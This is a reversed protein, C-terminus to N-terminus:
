DNHIMVRSVYKYLIFTVISVLIGKLLNFPVVAFLVFTSLGSISGNVATGMAIIADMGGFAAAYAPLLVFANLVGGVVAMCLTGVAMGIIAQKRTKRMRYLMGAPVVLACGILFNALEGVGATMTGNILFNLLIKLFEMMVGAAPGMIFCGILIPVESFDIEYFSPAFPLPIEFLMLIEAVTTLMAIQAMFRVKTSTNNKTMVNSSM